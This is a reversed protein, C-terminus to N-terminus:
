FRQVQLIKLNVANKPSKLQLKDFLIAAVQKPSNINFGEDALNYIKTELKSLKNDFSVTLHKLYDVDM